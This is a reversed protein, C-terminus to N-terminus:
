IAGPVDTIVPIHQKIVGRTRTPHQRHLLAGIAAREWDQALIKWYKDPPRLFLQSQMVGTHRFARSLAESSGLDLIDGMGQFNM